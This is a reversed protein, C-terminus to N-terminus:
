ADIFDRCVDALEAPRKFQVVHPAGPIEVLAAHKMQGQLYRTWGSPVISDRMGRVILAPIACGALTEEIKDEIMSRSTRLYRGVGMRLYDGFVLLSVRPPERLVDQLLRWAQIRRSREWKNVTPGLLILRRCSEPDRRVSHAIIQCGMSHGILVVPGGRLSQAYKAVVGGLETISLTHAPDPATGYGPLDLISVDYHKALEEAFPVFYRSSVGIGHVLVISQTAARRMRQVTIAYGDITLCEPSTLSNPTDSMYEM